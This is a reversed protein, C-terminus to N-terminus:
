APGLVHSVARYPLAVAYDDLRGARRTGASRRASRGAPGDALRRSRARGAARPSLESRRGAREPQFADHTRRSARRDRRLSGESRAFAECGRTRLRSPDARCAAGGGRFSWSGEAATRRGRHARLAERRSLDRQLSRGPAAVDGTRGGAAGAVDGIGDSQLLGTRHSRARPRVWRLGCAHQRVDALRQKERHRGCRRSAIADCTRARSRLARTSDTRVAASRLAYGM